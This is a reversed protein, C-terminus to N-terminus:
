KQRKSPTIESAILPRKACPSARVERPSLATPEVPMPGIPSRLIFHPEGLVYAYDSTPRHADWDVYAEQLLQIIEGHGAKQAAAMARRLGNKLLPRWRPELLVRVVETHGRESASHLCFSTDRITPSGTELLRWVWAVVGYYACVRLAIYRYAPWTEILAAVLPMDNAQVARSMAAEFRCDEQPARLPGEAVSERAREITEADM